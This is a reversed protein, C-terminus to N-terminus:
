LEKYIQNILNLTRENENQEEKSLSYVNLENTKRDIAIVEGSELEFEKKSQQNYIYDYTSLQFLWKKITKKKNYTKVELYKIKNEKTRVVIDVFGHFYHALNESFVHKEFELVEYEKQQIYNALTEFIKLLEQDNVISKIKEVSYQKTLELLETLQKGLEQPRKLYEEPINDFVYNTFNLLRSPSILPKNKDFKNYWRKNKENFHLLFTEM